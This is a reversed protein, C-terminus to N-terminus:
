KRVLGNSDRLLLDMLDSAWCGQESSFGLLYKVFSNGGCVVSGSQKNHVSITERQTQKLDHTGKIFSPIRGHAPCHTPLWRDAGGADEKGWRLEHGWQPPQCGPVSLPLCILEQHSLESPYSKSCHKRGSRGFSWLKSMEKQRTRNRTGEKWLQQEMIVVKMELLRVM